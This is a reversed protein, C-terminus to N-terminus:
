KQRSIKSQRENFYLLFDSKDKATKSIKRLRLTAALLNSIQSGYIGENSINEKTRTEHSKTGNLEPYFSIDKKALRRVHLNHNFYYLINMLHSLKTGTTFSPCVSHEWSYKLGILKLEEELEDNGFVPLFQLLGRGNSTTGEPLIAIPCYYSRYSKLFTQLTVGNDLKEPVPAGCEYLAQIWTQPEM